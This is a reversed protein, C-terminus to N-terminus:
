WEKGNTLAAVGDKMLPRAQTYRRLQEVSAELDVGHNKVEILIDPAVTGNGIFELSRNLFLAYDVRGERDGKFRPYEPHCEKPDCTKWGLARIIPAVMAYRTHEERWHEFEQDKWDAYVTRVHKIATEVGKITMGINKM